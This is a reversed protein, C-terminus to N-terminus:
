RPRQNPSIADIHTAVELVSPLARGDPASRGFRPEGSGPLLAM